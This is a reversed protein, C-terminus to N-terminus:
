HSSFNEQLCKRKEGKKIQVRSLGRIAKLKGDNAHKSAPSMSAPPQEEQEFM